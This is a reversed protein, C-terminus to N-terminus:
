KADAGPAEGQGLLAAAREVVMAPTVLTMCRHDIPCDRLFCPACEAHQRVVVAKTNWPYTVNWDTPGFIAVTPTELAAALHMTGSDNSILLKVHDLLAVLGPVDLQEGLRHVPTRALACIEDNLSSEWKSATSVLAAGLRGALEDGSSALLELPWRKAGGYAAGPNIAVLPKNELGHEKLLLALSERAEERVPLELKLQTSGMSGRPDLARVTARGIEAYYEVMHRPHVPGRSRISKRTRPKETPTQWESRNYRLSKTLLLGRGGRAFGVRIPIELLFALWASRLSNPMLAVADYQSQKLDLYVERPLRREDAVILRRVHPNDQFVAAVSPRALVDIHCQPLGARMVRLAATCMVCDGVWNPAKVLVKREM